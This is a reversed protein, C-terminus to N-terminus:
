NYTYDQNNRFDRHLNGVRTCQLSPNNVLSIKYYFSIYLDKGQCMHFWRLKGPQLDGVLMNKYTQIWHFDM